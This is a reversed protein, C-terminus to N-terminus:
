KNPCKMQQTADEELLLEKGLLDFLVNLQYLRKKTWDPRGEEQDKMEKPHRFKVVVSMIRWGDHRVGRVYPVMQADWSKGHYELWRYSLDARWAVPGFHWDINSRRIAKGNQRTQFGPIQNALSNFHLNAFSESHYQEIPYTQQFLEKERLPVVVETLSDFIPRCIDQVHNMLDVKEPEMFCIACDDLKLFNVKNLESLAKRAQLIAQRLAGGKGPHTNTDQEFVHVYGGGAATLEDKIQSHDPSGDVIVLPTLTQSALQCLQLALHYRIDTTDPYYTVTVVCVQSDASTSM